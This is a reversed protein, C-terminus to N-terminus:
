AEGFGPVLLDLVVRESWRHTSKLMNKPVPFELKCIALMRLLESTPYWRAGGCSPHLLNGATDWPIQTVRELGHTQRIHALKSESADVM